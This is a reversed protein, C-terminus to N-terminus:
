VSHFCSTPTLSHIAWLFSLSMGYNDCNPNSSLIWFHSFRCSSAHCFSFSFLPFGPFFSFLLLRKDMFTLSLSISSGADPQHPSHRVTQLQGSVPCLNVARKPQSWGTIYCCFGGSLEGGHLEAERRHQWTSLSLLSPGAARCLGGSFTEQESTATLLPIM